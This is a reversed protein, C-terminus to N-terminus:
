AKHKAKLDIVAEQERSLWAAVMAVIFHYSGIAV